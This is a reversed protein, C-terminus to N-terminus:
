RPDLVEFTECLIPMAPDFGDEGLVRRWYREHGRRWSELTGDDEGESAAFEASVECFPVREVATTRILARPNGGGDLVIWLDGVAPAPEAGLEAEATATGTKVGSLVLALLEDALAPTDGFAFTPPPLAAQSDTGLYIALRGIKAKARVAEWYTVVADQEAVIQDPFSESTM